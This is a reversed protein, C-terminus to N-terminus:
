TSATSVASCNRWAANGMPSVGFGRMRASAARRPRATASFGSLWSMQKMGVPLVRAKRPSRIPTRRPLTSPASPATSALWSPTCPKVMPWRLPSPMAPGPGSPRGRYTVAISASVPVTRTPSAASRSTRASAPRDGTKVAPAAGCPGTSHATCTRACPSTTSATASNAPSSSITRNRDGSRPTARPWVSTNYRGSGSPSSTSPLAVIAPVDRQDFGAELIRQSDELRRARVKEEVASSLIWGGHGAVLDDRLRYRRRLGVGEGDRSEHQAEHAQVAARQQGGDEGDDRQTLDFPPSLVTESQRDGGQRHRGGHGGQM